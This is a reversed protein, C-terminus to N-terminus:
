IKEKKRRKNKTFELGAKRLNLSKEKEMNWNKIKNKKTNNQNRIM